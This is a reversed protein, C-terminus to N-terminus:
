CAEACEVIENPSVFVYQEIGSKKRETLTYPEGDPKAYQIALLKGSHPFIREHLVFAPRGNHLVPRGVM